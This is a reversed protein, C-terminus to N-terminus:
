RVRREEECPNTLYFPVAPNGTAYRGQLPGAPTQVTTWTADCDLSPATPSCAALALLCMAALITKM